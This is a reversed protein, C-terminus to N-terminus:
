RCIGEMGGKFLVYYIICSVQNKNLLKQFDVHKYRETYTGGHKICLKAKEVQHHSVQSSTIGKFTMSQILECKWQDSLQINGVATFYTQEIEEALLPYNVARSRLAVIVQKWSPQLDLCSLWYTLMVRLCDQPNDKTITDLYDVSLGLELGLDYWKSAAKLLTDRVLKLDDKTLRDAM